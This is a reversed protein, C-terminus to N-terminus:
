KQGREKGFARSGFWFCVVAAWISWDENGWLSVIIDATSGGDHMLVVYTAVKVSAYLGFFALTLIPRVLANLGDVWAVGSPRMSAAFAALDTTVDATVNMEAMKAMHGTEALKLQLDGQANLMALEAAHNQKTEFYGILRPLGAGLLGVLAGLLSLM